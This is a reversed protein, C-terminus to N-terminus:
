GNLEGLAAQLQDDYSKDLSWLRKVQAILSNYTEENLVGTVELGNDGQFEELAAESEASFYGDTRDIDYNIYDLAEQMIKVYDSVEDYEYADDGFELIPENLIADLEVEIDPTIGEKNVWVGNPSLWKSTTYKIASGDSFSVTTQVTGKGYSTVGMVVVDDRQEKLAMTLVEAASATNENILIVINHINSFTQGKSHILDVSGDAFVQQMAVTGDDLFLGSINILASLYGGGNDRLDIILDQMGADSLQQLYERSEDYTSTGFSYIELYGTNDDVMKGFVTNVVEDRVIQLEIEENDRIFGITVVTGKEGLVMDRIDESTKGELSVGDVSDIIDGPLVGASEAPSNAFVRTVVNLDGSSSYQVGIGVYGMNISTEFEEVEKASLYTTHKDVDEFDTMAYLAKDTLETDLDDVQDAFFWQNEMVSQLQEIKEDASRIVIPQNAIVSRYILMGIAIGLVLILLSLVRKNRKSRRMNKEEELRKAKEDPWEHRQLKIVTKKDDEM